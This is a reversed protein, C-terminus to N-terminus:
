EFPNGRLQGLVAPHRLVEPFAPRRGEQHASGFNVLGVQDVCGGALQAAGEQDDGLLLGHGVSSILAM